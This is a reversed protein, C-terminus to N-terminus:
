ITTYLYMNKPMNIGICFNIILQSDGFVQIYNAKSNHYFNHYVYELGTMLAFVEAQNNTKANCRSGRSYLLTNDTDFVVFGISAM